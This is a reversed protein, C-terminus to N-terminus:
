DNKKDTDASEEVNSEDEAFRLSKVKKTTTADQVSVGTAKVNESSELAEEQKNDFILEATRIWRRRRTYKSFTDETSPKKWTNDYYIFGEDNTPNATTKSRKSSSLTIAGDNTLDLRWTKDVWRWTAGQMNSDGNTADDAANPLKFSDISSSENLFEDTWPTREYSLLNSTWGIGLWKRQNEYIVYTFRVPKNSKSSTGSSSVKAFAAAFLSHNKTESLDLGTLYFFILRVIKLKWLIRRTVISYSSHYTLLYVGTLLLITRPKILLFTVVLYVPTLFLTTFILRKIDYATLSLSTIPSLLIDAKVCTSTLAQVVDDLTPHLNAEKIIKNNLLAYSILIAVLILHGSWIVLNEFYLVVLAYLSIIVVNVWYDDNTWTTISLLKNIIILYPYSNVLAKSVSPPTSSLLPSSQPKANLKPDTVEAFNARLETSTETTATASEGVTSTATSVPNKNTGSSAEVKSM